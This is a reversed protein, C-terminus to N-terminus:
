YGRCTQYRQFARQTCAAYARSGRMAREFQCMEM